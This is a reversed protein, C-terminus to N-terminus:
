IKSTILEGIIDAMYDFQPADLGPYIGIWLTQNMVIDANTIKGVIRYKIDKYAPQRLLNGGFLLRTAIKNGELKAVLQNRTFPADKKVTLPFGFWSPTSNKTAEPLILYEELVLSEINNVLLIPYEMEALHFGLM